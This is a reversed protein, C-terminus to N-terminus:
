PIASPFMPTAIVSACSFVQDIEIQQAFLGISYLEALEGPSWALRAELDEQNDVDQRNPNFGEAIFIGKQYLAGTLSM